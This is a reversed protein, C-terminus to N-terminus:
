TMGKTIFSQECFLKKIWLNENGRLVVERMPLANSHIKHVFHSLQLNDLIVMLITLLNKLWIVSTKWEWQCSKNGGVLRARLTNLQRQKEKIERCWLGYVVFDGHHYMAIVSCM